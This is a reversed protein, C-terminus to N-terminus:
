TKESRRLEKMRGYAEMFESLGSERVVEGLRTDLGAYAKKYRGRQGGPIKFSKVMPGLQGLIKELEEPREYSITVKASMIM